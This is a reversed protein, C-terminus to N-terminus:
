MERYFGVNMNPIEGILGDGFRALLPDEGDRDNILLESAMEKTASGEQMRWAQRMEMDFGFQWEIAAPEAAGADALPVLAAGGASDRICM